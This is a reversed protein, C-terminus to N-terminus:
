TSKSWGRDKAPLETGQVVLAETWNSGVSTLQVPLEIPYTAISLPTQREVVAAVFVLVADLAPATMPTSSASASAELKSAVRTADVVTQRVTGLGLRCQM